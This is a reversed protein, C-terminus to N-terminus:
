LLKRQRDCQKEEHRMSIGIFYFFSTDSSFVM